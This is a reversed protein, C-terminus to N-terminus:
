DRDFAIRGIQPLWRRAAAESLAAWKYLVGAMFDIRGQFNDTVTTRRGAQARAFHFIQAFLRLIRRKPLLDFHNLVQVSLVFGETM